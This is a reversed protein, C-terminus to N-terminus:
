KIKFFKAKYENIFNNNITKMKILYNGSELKSVDIRSIKSTKKLRLRGTLDFVEVLLIEGVCRLNLINKVPNPYVFISENILKNISENNSEFGKLLFVFSSDKKLDMTLVFKDTMKKVVVSECITTLENSLFYPIEISILSSELDKYKEKNYNIFNLKVTDGNLEKILTLEHYLNEYQLGEKLTTVWLDNSKTNEKVFDLIQILLNSTIPSYGDGDIGHGVLLLVDGNDIGANIYSIIGEIKSNSILPKYQHVSYDSYDRDFLHYKQQSIRSLKNKNHGPSAFSVCKFGLTNEVMEKGKRIQFDIQFTDAKSLDLHSYTHNGIEHGRVLIDKLSDVCMYSSIVFFTAKFGYRDFIQSIKSSSINNDDFSFNICTTADGKWRCIKILDLSNSTSNNETTIKLSNLEVQCLLIDSSFCIFIIVLFLKISHKM